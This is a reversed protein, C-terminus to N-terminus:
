EQYEGVFFGATLITGLENIEEATAGTLNSLDPNSLKTFGRVESLRLASECVYGTTHGYNKPNNIKQKYLTLYPVQNYFTSSISGFSSGQSIPAQRHALSTQMASDAIANVGALSNIAFNAAQFGAPVASAAAAGEATAAALGPGMLAGLGSVFAGGVALCTAITKFNARMINNAQQVADNGSLPIDLGLNITDVKLNCVYANGLKIDVVTLAYTLTGSNLDGHATLLLGMDKINGTSAITNIDLETDGIYPISVVLKSYPNFDLFSNTWPLDSLRWSGITFDFVTSTATHFYFNPNTPDTTNVLTAGTGLYVPETTQSVITGTAQSTNTYAQFDVPYFRFSSIYNFITDSSNRDAINLAEYFTKVQTWLSREFNQADTSSLIYYKVSAPPNIRDKAGTGILDGFDKEDTKDHRVPVDSDDPIEPDYHTDPIQAKTLENSTINGTQWDAVKSAFNPDDARVFKGTIEYDDTYIPYWVQDTLVTGGNEGSWARSVTTTFKLFQGLACAISKPKLILRLEISAASPRTLLTNGIVKSQYTSIDSDKFECDYAGPYCGNLKFTEQGGDIAHTATNIRLVDIDYVSPSYGTNLQGAEAVKSDVYCVPMYRTAHQVTNIAFFQPVGAWIADTIAVYYTKDNDEFSAVGNGGFDAIGLAKLDEAQAPASGRFWFDLTGDGNFFNMLANLRDGTSTISTGSFPTRTIFHYNAQLPNEEETWVCYSLGGNSPISNVGLCEPNDLENFLTYRPRNTDPVPPQWQSGDWRFRVTQNAIDGGGGFQKYGMLYIPSNKPKDSTFKYTTNRGDVEYGYSSFLYWSPFNESAIWGYVYPELWKDSNLQPQIVDDYELQNTFDTLQVYYTHPTGNISVSIAGTYQSATGSAGPTGGDDYFRSIDM